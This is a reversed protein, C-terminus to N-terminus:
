GPVAEANSTEDRSAALLLFVLSVAAYLGGVAAMQLATFRTVSSVQLAALGIPTLIAIRLAEFRVATPRIENLRGLSFLQLWLLACPVLM